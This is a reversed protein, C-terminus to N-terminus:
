AQQPTTAGDFGDLMISPVSSGNTPAIIMARLGNFTDFTTAGQVLYIHRPYGKRIKKTAGDASIITLRETVRLNPDYSCAVREANSTNDSGLVSQGGGGFAGTETTMPCFADGSPFGRRRWGRWVIASPANGTMLALATTSFTGSADLQVNAANFAITTYKQTVFPDLDGPEGGDMRHYAVTHAVTPGSSDGITIAFSGDPTVGAAGTMNWSIIQARGLNTAVNFWNSHSPVGASITGCALYAGASSPFSNGTGGAGPAVTATCGASLMLSSFQSASETEEIARQIYISGTSTNAAAFFVVQMTLTRISGNPTMTAGSVAGSIVGSNNFTGTRTMVVAHAQGSYLTTLGLMEGEAGSGAQTIKEGRIFTGTTAVTFPIMLTKVGEAAWWCAVTNLASPYADLLPNANGGWKDNTAIASTDKSSGDSSGLYRAGSAKIARTLRHIASKANNASDLVYNEIQVDAM